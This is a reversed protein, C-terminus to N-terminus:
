SLWTLELRPLAAVATVHLTMIHQSFHPDWFPTLSSGLRRPHSATDVALINIFCRLINSRWRHKSDNGNNETNMHFINSRWNCPKDNSVIKFWRLAPRLRAKVEGTRSFAGHLVCFAVLKSHHGLGYRMYRIKDFVMLRKEFQFMCVFTPIPPCVHLCFPTVTNQM